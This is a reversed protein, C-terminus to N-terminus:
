YCLSRIEEEFQNIHKKAEAATVHRRFFSEIAKLIPRKPTFLELLECPADLILQLIDASDDSLDLMLRVVDLDNCERELVQEHPLSLRKQQESRTYDILRRRICVTAFRGNSLYHPRSDWKRTLYLAAEQLLEERDFHFRVVFSNVIRQIPPQLLHWAEEVTTEKPIEWSESAPASRDKQSKSPKSDLGRDLSAKTHDGQNRGNSRNAGRNTARPNSAYTTAGM